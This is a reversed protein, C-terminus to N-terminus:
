PELYEVTIRSFTLEVEGWSGQIHASNGTLLLTDINGYDVEGDADASFAKRLRLARWDLDAIAEFRLALRKFCNYSESPPPEYAPYSETLVADLLFILDPDQEAIGLVYSDELYIDQLAVCTEFYPKM